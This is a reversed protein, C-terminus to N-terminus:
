EELSRLFAEVLDKKTVQGEFHEILGSLHQQFFERDISHMEFEDLDILWAKLNEATRRAAEDTNRMKLGFISFWKGTIVSLVEAYYGGHELAFNTRVVIKHRPEKEVM